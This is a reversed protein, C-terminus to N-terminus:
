AENQLLKILQREFDKWDHNALAFDRPIGPNYHHIIRRLISEIADAQNNVSFGTIGNMYLEPHVAQHGTEAHNIDLVYNGSMQSEIVPLEYSGHINTAYIWSQNLLQAFEVQPIQRPLHRDARSDKAGALYVSIATGSSRIEQCADLVSEINSWGKATSRNDADIIIVPNDSKMNPHFLSPSAGRALHRCTKKLLQQNAILWPFPDNSAWYDCVSRLPHLMLDFEKSIVFPLSRKSWPPTASFYVKPAKSNWFAFRQRYKEMHQPYRGWYDVYLLFDPDKLADHLSSRHITIGDKTLEEELGTAM